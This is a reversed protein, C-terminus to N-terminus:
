NLFTLKCIQQKEPKEAGYQSAPPDCLLWTHGHLGSIFFFTKWPHMRRGKIITYHYYLILIYFFEVIKFSQKGCKQSSFTNRTDKNEALICLWATSLIHSTFSGFLKSFSEILGSTSIARISTRKWATLKECLNNVTLSNIGAVFFSIRLAILARLFVKTYAEYHTFIFKTKFVSLILLTQYITVAIIINWDLM